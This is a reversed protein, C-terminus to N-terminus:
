IKNFIKILKIQSERIYDFLFDAKNIKRGNTIRGLQIPNM